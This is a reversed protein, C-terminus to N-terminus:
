ILSLNRKSREAGVLEHTMHDAFAFSSCVWEGSSGYNIKYPVCFTASIVNGSLHLGPYATRPNFGAADQYNPRQATLSLRRLLEEPSRAGAAIEATSSPRRGNIPKTPPIYNANWQPSSGASQKSSQSHSPSGQSHSGQGLPVSGDTEHGVSIQTNLMCAVSPGSQLRGAADSNGSSMQKSRATSFEGSSDNQM